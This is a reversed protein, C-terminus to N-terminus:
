FQVIFHTLTNLRIKSCISSIWLFGADLAHTRLPCGLRNKYKDGILKCCLIRSGAAATQTRAKKRDSKIGKGEQLCYFSAASSIVYMKFFPCFRLIVAGLNANAYDPCGSDHKVAVYLAELLQKNINLLVRVNGFIAMILDESVIKKKRMPDM